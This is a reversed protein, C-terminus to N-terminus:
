IELDIKEKSEQIDVKSPPSVKKGVEDKETLARSKEEKKNEKPKGDKDKEEHKIKVKPMFVGALTAIVVLHNIGNTKAMFDLVGTEQELAKACIQKEQPNLKEYTIKGKTMLSVVGMLGDIMNILGTAVANYDVPPATSAQAEAPKPPNADGNDKTFGLGLKKKKVTLPATSGDKRPRGRKRKAPENTLSVSNDPTTPTAPLNTNSIANDQREQIKDNPQESM